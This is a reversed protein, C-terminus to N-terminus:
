LDFDEDIDNDADHIEAGDEHFKIPDFEESNRDSDADHIKERDEYFKIPDFEEDDRDNDAINGHFKIPDFEEGNSDNHVEPIEDDDQHVQHAPTSSFFVFM